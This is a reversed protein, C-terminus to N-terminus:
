PGPRLTRGKGKRDWAGIVGNGYDDVGMTCVTEGTKNGLSLDGGLPGGLATFLEQGTDSQLSFFGVRKGDLEITGLSLALPTSAGTGEHWMNLQAHGDVISLNSRIEGDARLAMGPSNSSDLSCHVAGDQYLAVHAYPPGFFESASMGTVEAVSKGGRARMSWRGGTLVSSFPANPEDELILAKARITDYETEAPQGQRAIAFSSLAIAVLSTLQTANM